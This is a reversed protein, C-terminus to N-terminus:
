LDRKIDAVMYDLAARIKTKDAVSFDIPKNNGDKGRLKHSYNSVSPCYTLFFYKAVIYRLVTHSRNIIKRGEM